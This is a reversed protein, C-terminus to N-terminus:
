KLKIPGKMPTKARKEGEQKLQEKANMEYAKKATANVVIKEGQREATEGVDYQDLEPLMNTIPIDIIAYSVEDTDWTMAGGEDGNIKYKKAEAESRSMYGGYGKELTVDNASQTDWTGWTFLGSNNILDTVGTEKDSPDFVKVGKWPADDDAVVKARAVWEYNKWAKEQADWRPKPTPVQRIELVESIQMNGLETTIKNRKKGIIVENGSAAQKITMGGGVIAKNAQALGATFNAPTLVVVTDEAKKAVLKGNKYEPYTEKKAFEGGAPGLGMVLAQFRRLEEPKQIVQGSNKDINRLTEEHVNGTNHEESKFKQAYETIRDKVYLNFLLDNKAPNAIDADSIYYDNDYLINGKKDKLFDGKEDMKPMKFAKKNEVDAYFAQKLYYEQSDNFGYKVLYGIGKNIQDINKADNWSHGTTMSAAYDLGETVTTSEKNSVSGANRNMGIHGDTFIQDVAQHFDEQKGTGNDFQVHNIGVTGDQREYLQPEAIVTQVYDGKKGFGGDVSGFKPVLNGHENTALEIDNQHQGSNKNKIQSLRDLTQVENQEAADKDYVLWRAEAVAKKYEPDSQVWAMEGGYKTYLSQVKSNFEKEQDYVRQKDGPNGKADFDFDETAPKSQVPKTRQPINTVDLRPERSYSMFGPADGMYNVLAM